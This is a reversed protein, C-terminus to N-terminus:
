VREILDLMERTSLETNWYRLLVDQNRNVFHLVKKKIKVPLIGMVQPPDTLRVSAAERLGETTLKEGLVVKIRPGHKAGEFEGASVWIVAGDVGTGTPRLNSFLFLDYCTM